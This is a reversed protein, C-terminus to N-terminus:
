QFFEGWASRFPLRTAGEETATPVHCPKVWTTHVQKVIIHIIVTWWTFIKIVSNAFRARGEVTRPYDKSFIDSARQRQQNRTEKVPTSRKWRRLANYKNETYMNKCIQLFFILFLLIAWQFSTILFINQVLITLYDASKYVARSNRGNWM